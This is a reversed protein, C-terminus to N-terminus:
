RCRDPEVLRRRAGPVFGGCRRSSRSAISHPHDLHTSLYESRQSGRAREVQKGVIDFSKAAATEARVAAKFTRADHQIAQLSDAVNQFATIVTSKYQAEFQLYNQEAAKQKHFL